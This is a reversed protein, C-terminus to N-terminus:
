RVAGLIRGTRTRHTHGCPHHHLENHLTLAAHWASNAEILAESLAAVRQPEWGHGAPEPEALHDLVRQTGAGRPHGTGDSVSIARVDTRSHLEDLHSGTELVTPDIGHALVTVDLRAVHEVTVDTAGAATAAATVAATITATDLDPRNVNPHGLIRIRAQTTM